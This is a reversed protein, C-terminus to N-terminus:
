WYREPEVQNSITGYGLMSGGSQALSAQVRM